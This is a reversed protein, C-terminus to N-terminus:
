AGVGGLVKHRKALRKREPEKLGALLEAATAMVSRRAAKRNAEKHLQRVRHGHFINRTM